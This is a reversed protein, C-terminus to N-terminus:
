ARRRSERPNVHRIAGRVARRIAGEEARQRSNEGAPEPVTNRPPHSAPYSM